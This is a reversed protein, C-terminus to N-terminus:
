GSNFQMENPESYVRGGKAEAAVAIITSSMRGAVAEQRIHELPVTTGCVICKAGRRDVTGEPPTGKGTVITYRVKHPQTSRDIIPVIWTERGKKHSLEWKSALPMEAGCAPNPCQIIHAWIWAVVTADGGGHEPPLQVKPYLHGLQKEAQEQILNGYYQFDEVLGQIGSRHEGLEMQAGSPQPHAAPQDSFRAPIEIM